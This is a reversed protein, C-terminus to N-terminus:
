GHHKEELAANLRDLLDKHEVRVFPKGGYFSAIADRAERLLAQQADIIGDAEELANLTDGWMIPADIDDGRWQRKCASNFAAQYKSLKERLAAVRERLSGGEGHKPAAPAINAKTVSDQM